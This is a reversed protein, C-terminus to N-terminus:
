ANTLEGAPASAGDAGEPAPEGLKLTLQRGAGM